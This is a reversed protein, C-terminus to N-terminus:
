DEATVLAGRADIEFRGDSIATAWTATPVVAGFPFYHVASILSEPDAAVARALDAVTDAPRYVQTALKFVNGSQKRLVALSPGIGCSLGFKLLKAPSTLGPLGVHVPLNNGADRTRREWGVIPEASFCFQTVVHLPLGFEAAVKNKRALAHDVTAQDVGPNGEPHGAVGISAFERRQLCPSELVQLTSEIRGTPVPISGAILLIDTVGADLLRGLTRDIAAMDPFARVALHVVPRLGVDRVERAAALVRDFTVNGLYTVYVPAGPALVRVADALKATERPTVEVSFGGMLRRATARVEAADVQGM